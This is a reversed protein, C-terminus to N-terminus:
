PFCIFYCSIFFPLLLKPNEYIYFIGFKSANQEFKEDLMFRKEICRKLSFEDCFIFKYGLDSHDFLSLFLAFVIKEASAPKSGVVGQECPSNAPARLWEAM